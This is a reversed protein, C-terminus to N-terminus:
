KENTTCKSGCCPCAISYVRYTGDLSYGISYDRSDATFEARCALCRFTKILDEPIKGEKLIKIM